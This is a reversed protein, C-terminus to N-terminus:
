LGVKGEVLVKNVEESIKALQEQDTHRRVIMVIARILGKAQEATLMDKKRDRMKMETDVLKRDQEVLKALSEIKASEGVGYNLVKGMLAMEENFTETERKKLARVMRKYIAHAERWADGSESTDMGDLIESIQARIVAISDNLNLLEDQHELMAQYKEGFSGVVDKSYLGSTTRPHALGRPSAGGHFRCRNRGASPLKRCPAGNRSSTKAGCIPKGSEDFTYAMHKGMEYQYFVKLRGDNVQAKSLSDVEYVQYKESEDSAGSNDAVVIESM